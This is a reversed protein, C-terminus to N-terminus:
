TRAEREAYLADLHARAGNIEEQLKLAAAKAQEHAAAAREGERALGEAQAALRLVVAELQRGTESLREAVATHTLLEGRAAETASEAEVVEELRRAYASEAEALQRASAESSERMRVDKLVLSESESTVASLRARVEEA